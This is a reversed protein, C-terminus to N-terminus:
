TSPSSKRLVNLTLRKGQGLVIGEPGFRLLKADHDENVPRYGCHLLKCTRVSCAPWDVSSAKLGNVALPHDISIRTLTRTETNTASTAIATTRRGVPANACLSTTLPVTVSEVSPTSGHRM